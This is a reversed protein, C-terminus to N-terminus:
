SLGSIRPSPHYFMFFLIVIVLAALVVWRWIKRKTANKVPIDAM